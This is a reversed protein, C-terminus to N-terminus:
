ELKAAARLGSRAGARKAVARWPDPALFFLNRALYVEEFDSETLLIGAQGQPLEQILWVGHTKALIFEYQVNQGPKYQYQGTQSLTALRQGTYKVTELQEGAKTGPIQPLYPVSSIGIPNNGVVAVPGNDPHWSKRLSPVLYRKAAASDVAYSASAHLFGLVVATPSWAKASTPAPPPLPQVYAQVQSGGGAARRPPGGSPATACGAVAVVIASAALVMPMRFWRVSAM